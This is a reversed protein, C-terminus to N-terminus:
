EKMDKITTEVVSMREELKFTREITSNHKDQKKELEQLRYDILTITKRNSIASVGLASAASILSPVLVTILDSM